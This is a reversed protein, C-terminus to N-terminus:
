GCHRQNQSSQFERVKAASRAGGSSIGPATEASFQGYAISNTRQVITGRSSHCSAPNVNGRSGHYLGTVVNQKRAGGLGGEGQARPPRSPPGRIPTPSKRLFINLGGVATGGSPGRSDPALSLASPEENCPNGAPSRPHIVSASAARRNELSRGSYANPSISSAPLSRSPCNEVCCRQEGCNM